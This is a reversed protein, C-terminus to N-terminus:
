KGNLEIFLCHCYINDLILIGNATSMIIDGAVAICNSYKKAYHVYVMSKNFCYIVKFM